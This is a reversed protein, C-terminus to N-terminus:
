LKAQQLFFYDTKKSSASSILGFLLPKVKQMAQAAQPYTHTNTQPHLKFGGSGTYDSLLGFLKM